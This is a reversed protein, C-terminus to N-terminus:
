CNRLPATTILLKFIYLQLQLHFVFLVSVGNLICTPHEVYRACEIHGWEDRIMQQRAGSDKSGARGRDSTGGQEFAKHWLRSSRQGHFTSPWGRMSLLIASYSSSCYTLSCHHWILWHTM